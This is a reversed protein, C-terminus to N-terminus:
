HVYRQADNLLLQVLILCFAIFVLRHLLIEMGVSVPKGRIKEVFAYVISGGDLGPVPLLNILAVALSLSTIFYLYVSLGQLFTGVMTSFLGLPGLLVVFPIVGTLLQKLMVLFFYLLNMLQLFAHQCAAWWSLGIVQYQHKVSLDPYIGIAGLLSKKGHWQALDLQVQHKVGAKNEVIVDVEGHGLAMILQMGVERWSAVSLGRVQEIRDGAVLGASAAISPVEITAIVPATQQYGLLCMLVLALWATLINALAGSLLVICRVWIPKKDFSFAYDNPSVPEIRSNLLQVYGGLPWWAWVWQCGNKGRWGLLAKGFGISIKKIKIKFIFAVFAHGAEHLGVVLLLSLMVAFLSLAVFM